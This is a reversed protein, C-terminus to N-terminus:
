PSGKATLDFVLFGNGYVLLPYNEELYSKLEPQNEFENLATVLFYDMGATRGEFEDQFNREGGDALAFLRYDAGSPWMAGPSRWGFYNLRMGYDATLAIFPRAAPVAMGVRRWSEPENQYSNGVLTSRSVYLGYFAALVVVGGAAVRVARPQNQVADILGGAASVFSLAMLPVLMLHYYEHTVYQYPFVLGFLGYGLWGGLLLGRLAPAALLAGVLALGFPLLGTLGKIMALWDAYFNTTLILHILSGTWFSLFGESRQPNILLYYVLAPALMLVGMGWVQAQRWFRKLGYVTLAAGLLMGGVYFAAFVKILIAASGVAVVTLARKWTPQEVWRLLALLAFLIWACMWPDPQFSRSAVVSFPLFLYFLLGILSAGRSGTRRGARYLAGGGLVWFLASVVRGVWFYERGLLADVGGVLTELIPPEYVELAALDQSLQQEAASGNHSFQFFAARALIASRLQRTAHFDLPPDTLDVMRVGLGLLLVLVVLGGVLVRRDFGGSHRAAWKM